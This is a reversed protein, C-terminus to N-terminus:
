ENHKSMDVWKVIYEQYFKIINDDIKINIEDIEALSDAIRKSIMARKNRMSSIYLQLQEKKDIEVFGGNWSKNYCMDLM